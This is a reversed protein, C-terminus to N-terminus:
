READLSDVIADKKDLSRAAAAAAAASAAAAAATSGHRGPLFDVRRGFVFLKSEDILEYEPERM